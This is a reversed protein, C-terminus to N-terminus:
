LITILINYPCEKVNVKFFWSAIGFMNLLKLTNNVKLDGLLLGFLLLKRMYIQLHWKSVRNIEFKWLSEKWFDIKLVRENFFFTRFMLLCNWKFKFIFTKGWDGGWHRFLKWFLLSRLLLARHSSKLSHYHLTQKLLHIVSNRFRHIFVNTNVSFNWTLVVM